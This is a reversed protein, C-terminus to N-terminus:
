FGLFTIQVDGSRSVYFANQVRNSRVRCIRGFFLAIRFTSWIRTCFINFLFAIKFEIWIMSGQAPFDDDCLSPLLVRREGRRDLEVALHRSPPVPFQPAGCQGEQEGQSEGLSARASALRPGLIRTRCLLIALLM